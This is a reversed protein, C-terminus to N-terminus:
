GIRKDDFDKSKILGRTFAGMANLSLSKPLVLVM